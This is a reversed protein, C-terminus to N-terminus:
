HLRFFLQHIRDTLIFGLWHVSMTAFVPLSPMINIFHSLEFVPEVKLCFYCIFVNFWCIEYRVYWPTVPLLLRGSPQSGAEMATTAPSRILHTELPTLILGHMQLPTIVDTPSYLFLSFVRYYMYVCMMVQCAVHVATELAPCALSM